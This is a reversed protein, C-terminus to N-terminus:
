TSLSLVRAANKWAIKEFVERSIHGGAVAENMFDVLPTENRPDCIDTGFLLRDQFETMFSYGFKPDRSVANYGSGASLDGLLNPYQRMLRVVAGGEAVRGKPYGGREEDRLDGSIESWFAQSHGLFVLDPFKRLAGELLPLGKHDILGYAGGRKTAVHFTLPLGLAEAHRCLNEVLPDDWSLNACVEGVGKCGREIYWQMLRSFDYDPANAELRPDLNMFPIFFDPHREVVALCEEVAQTVHSGEPNVTPLIVAKEVGKPRLMEILEEPTAYTGGGARHPTPFMSTHVHIDIFV